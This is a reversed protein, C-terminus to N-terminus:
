FEGGLARILNRVEQSSRVSVNPIPPLGGPPRGLQAQLGPIGARLTSAERRKERFDTLAKILESIRSLIDATEAELEPALQDLRAIGYALRLAQEERAQQQKLKVLADRTRRIDAAEEELKRIKTKLGEVKGDKGSLTKEALALGLEGQLADVQEAIENLRPQVREIAEDTETQKESFNELKERVKAQQAM